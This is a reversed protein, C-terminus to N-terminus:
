YQFNNGYYEDMMAIDMVRIIQDLQEMSYERKGIADSVEQYYKPHIAGMKMAQQVKKKVERGKMDLREKKAVNSLEAAKESKEDFEPDPKIDPMRIGENTKVNELEERIMRKLTETTLKM